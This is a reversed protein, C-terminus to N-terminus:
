IISGMKVIFVAEDRTVGAYKLIDDVISVNCDDVWPSNFPVGYEGCRETHLNILYTFCDDCSYHGNLIISACLPCPWMSEDPRTMNEDPRTM